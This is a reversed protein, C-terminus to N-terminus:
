RADGCSKDLIARLACFRAKESVQAFRDNISVTAWFPSDALATESVDHASALSPNEHMEHM